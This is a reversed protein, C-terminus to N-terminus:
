GQKNTIEKLWTKHIYAADEKSGRLIRVWGGERITGGRPSHGLESARRLNNEAARAQKLDDSAKQLEKHLRLLRQRIEKLWETGNTPPKPLLSPNELFEIGTPPRGFLAM